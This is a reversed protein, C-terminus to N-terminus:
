KIAGSVDTFVSSIKNTLTGGSGVYSAVAVVFALLVAYEVIGQGKEGLYRARLYNLVTFM